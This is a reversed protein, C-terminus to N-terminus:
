YWHFHLCLHDSSLQFTLCHGSAKNYAVMNPFWWFMTTARLPKAVRQDYIKDHQETPWKLVQTLNVWKITWQWVLNNPSLLFCLGIEMSNQNIINWKTDKSIINANLLPSACPYYQQMFQISTYLTQSLSKWMTAYFEVKRRQHNLSSNKCKTNITQCRVINFERTYLVITKYIHTKCMHQSIFIFFAINNQERQCYYNLFLSYTHNFFTKNLKTNVALLPIALVLSSKLNHLVM